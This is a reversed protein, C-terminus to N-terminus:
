EKIDIMNKISREEKIRITKGLVWYSAHTEKASSHGQLLLGTNEQLPAPWASLGGKGTRPCTSGSLHGPLGRPQCCPLSTVARIASANSLAWVSRLDKKTIQQNAVPCVKTHLLVQPKELSRCGVSLYLIQGQRGRREQERLTRLIATESAAKRPPQTFLHVSPHGQDVRLHWPGSLKQRTNNLIRSFFIRKCSVSEWLSCIM